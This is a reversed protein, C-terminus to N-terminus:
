LISNEPYFLTILCIHKIWIIFYQKILVKLTDVAGAGLNEPALFSWSWINKSRPSVQELYDRLQLQALCTRCTNM